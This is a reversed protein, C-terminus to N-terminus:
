KFIDRTVCGLYSLTTKITGLYSVVYELIVSLHICVARPIITM